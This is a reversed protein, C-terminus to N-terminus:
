SSSNNGLGSFTNGRFTNKFLLVLWLSVDVMVQRCSFVSCQCIDVCSVMETKATASSDTRTKMNCFATNYNIQCPKQPSEVDLMRFIRISIDDWHIKCRM